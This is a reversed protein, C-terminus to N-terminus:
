SWSQAIMPAPMSGDSAAIRSFSAACSKRVVTTSCSLLLVAARTVPGIISMRGTPSELAIMALSESGSIRMTESVIVSPPYKM